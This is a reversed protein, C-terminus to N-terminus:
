MKWILYNDAVSNQIMKREIKSEYLLMFWQFIGDTCYQQFYMQHLDIGANLICNIYVVPNKKGFFRPFFHKTRQEQYIKIEYM